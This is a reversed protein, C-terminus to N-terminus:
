KLIIKHSLTEGNNFVAKVVYTGEVLGSLNHESMSKENSYLQKGDIAYVCIHAPKSLVLKKGQLSMAPKEESNPLNVSTPDGPVFSVSFDDVLIASGNSSKHLIGVYFHDSDYEKTNFSVETWEKSAEKLSVVTNTFDEPMNSKTSVYVAYSDNKPRGSLSRIFFKVEGYGNKTVFNPSVLMQEATVPLGRFWLNDDISIPYNTWSSMCDEGSHCFRSTQQKTIHPNLNNLVTFLSIWDKGDCDIDYSLWGKLESEFGENYPYDTIQTGGGGKGLVKMMIQNQEEGNSDKLKLTVLHDGSKDWRVTPNAETSTAPTGGEFIWSFTLGTGKAEYEATFKIEDGINAVRPSIQIIKPRISEVPKLGTLKSLSGIPDQRYFQRDMGSYQDLSAYKGEPTILVFTPYGEININLAKTIERDSITHVVSKGGNTWDGHSKRGTTGHVKGEIAARSDGEPFILLPEIKGQFNDQIKELGRANHFDWCPGCWIASCDLFIYKGAKILDGISIYNGNIDVTKYDTTPLDVFQGFAPFKVVSSLSGPGTTPVEPSPQACLNSAIFFASMVAIAPLTKKRM